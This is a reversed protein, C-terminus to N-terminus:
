CFLRFKLKPKQISVKSGCRPEGTNATGDTTTTVEVAAIAGHVMTDMGGAAAITDLGGTGWALTCQHGM